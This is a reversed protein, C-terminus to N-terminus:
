GYQQKGQCLESDVSQTLFQFVPCNESWRVELVSYFKKTRSFHKVESTRRDGVVIDAEGKIIPQVLKAIDSGAYQNDGDTNVIIDAEAKLAAVMGKQFSRALGINKKNVLIHEVGNERAVRVTQDFSGDDIVLLEVLDIGDINRPIDAIVRALTTEENFCPIQVILKM